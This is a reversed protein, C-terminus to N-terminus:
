SAFIENLETPIPPVICGIYYTCTVFFVDSQLHYLVQQSKATYKTTKPIYMDYQGTTRPSRHM